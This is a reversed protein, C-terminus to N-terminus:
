KLLCENARRRLPELAKYESVLNARYEEDSGRKKRLKNRERAAALLGESIRPVDKRAAMQLEERYYKAGNENEKKLIKEMPPTSYVYELLENLTKHAVVSIVFDALYRQPEPLDYDYATQLSYCYAEGYQTFYTEENIVGILERMAEPIAYSYPGYYHRIFKINTYQKGFALFHYHEFLYIIKVLGTRGISHPMNDILYVILDKLRKM